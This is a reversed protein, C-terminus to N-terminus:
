NARMVICDVSLRKLEACASRADDQNYDAFRARYWQTDDKHFV